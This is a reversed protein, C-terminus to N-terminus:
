VWRGGDCHPPMSGASMSPLVSGGAPLGSYKTSTSSEAQSGALMGFSRISTQAYRTLQSAGAEEVNVFVVSSWWDGNSPMRQPKAFQTGCFSVLWFSSVSVYKVINRAEYRLKPFYSDIRM